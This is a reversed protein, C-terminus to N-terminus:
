AGGARGGALVMGSVPRRGLAVEETMEAGRPRVSHRTPASGSPRASSEEQARLVTLCWIQAARYILEDQDRGEFSTEIPEPFPTTVRQGNRPDVEVIRDLSASMVVGRQGNELAARRNGTIRWPAEVAYGNPFEISTTLLDGELSGRCAPVERNPVQAVVGVPYVLALAALAKVMSRM